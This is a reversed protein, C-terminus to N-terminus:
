GLGHAPTTTRIFDFKLLDNIFERVDKILTDAPADKMSQQLEATISTLDHTGDCLKWCLMGTFNVLKAQNMDINFLVGSEEDLHQRVVPNQIFLSETSSFPEILLGDKGLLTAPEVIGQILLQQYLTIADQCAETESIEYAEALNAAVQNVSHQGNTRALIASAIPNFEILHRDALRLVLAGHEFAEIVVQASPRFIQGTIPRTENESMTTIFEGM